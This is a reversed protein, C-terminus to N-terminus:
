IFQVALLIIFQQHSLPYCHLDLSVQVQESCRAVIGANVFHLYWHFSVARATYTEFYVCVYFVFENQNGTHKAGHFHASCTNWSLRGM